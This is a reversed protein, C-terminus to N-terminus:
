WAGYFSWRPGIEYYSGGPDEGRVWCRNNAYVGSVNPGLFIPGGSVGRLSVRGSLRALSVNNPGLYGHCRGFAIPPDIRGRLTLPAPCGEATRVTVELAICVDDPHTRELEGLFTELRTAEVGAAEFEQKVEDPTPEEDQPQAAAVVSLKVHDAYEALEGAHDPRAVIAVDFTQGTDNVYTATRCVSPGCEARFDLPQPEGPEPAGM